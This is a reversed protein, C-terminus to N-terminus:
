EPFKLLPPEMHPQFLQREEAIHTSLKEISFSFTIYQVCLLQCPFVGVVFHLAPIWCKEIWAGPKM